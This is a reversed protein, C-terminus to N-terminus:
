QNENKQKKKKRDRSTRIIFWREYNYLYFLFLSLYENNEGKRSLDQIIDNINPLHSELDESINRDENLDQKMTFIGIWERFTINLLSKLPKNINNEEEEKELLEEITTKNHNEELDKYTSSIELSLLDKLSMNLYELNDRKRVHNIYNDYNLEKVSTSDDCFANFYKILYKFLYTKVKKIINDSKYKDHCRETPDDKKKRGRKFKKNEGTDEDSNYDDRIRKRRLLGMEEEAAILKPEEKFLSDIFSYNNPCKEQLIQKIDECSLYNVGKIKETKREKNKSQDEKNKYKETAQHGEIQISIPRNIIINNNRSISQQERGDILTFSMQGNNEESAGFLNTEFNISEHFDFYNSELNEFM